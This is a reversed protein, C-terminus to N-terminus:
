LTIKNKLTYICLVPNGTIELQSLIQKPFDHKTKNNKTYEDMDFIADPLVFTIIRDNDITLFHSDAFPFKETSGIYGVMYNQLENFFFLKYESLHYVFTFFLFRDSLYLNDILSIPLDWFDSYHNKLYDSREDDSLSIFSNNFM